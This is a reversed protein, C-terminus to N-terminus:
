AQQEKSPTRQELIALADATLTYLGPLRGVGRRGSKQWRPLNEILGRRALAATYTGGRGNGKLYQGYGTVTNKIDTRTGIAEALERATMPGREALVNLIQVERPALDEPWGCERAYRRYALARVDALSEVGAAAIQRRTGERTREKCTQCSDVAGRSGVAPLGLKRRWYAVQHKASNGKARGLARAICSNCAGEGALRRIIEWERQGYHPITRTLGLRAAQM